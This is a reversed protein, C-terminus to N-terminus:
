KTASLVWKLGPNDHMGGDTPDASNYGLAAYVDSAVDIHDVTCGMCKDAAVANVTHGNAIITMPTGMGDAGCDLVSPNVAVYMKGNEYPQGCAGYAGTTDGIWTIKGEFTTGSVSVTGSDSSASTAAAPPAAASAAAESTTAVPTPTPEEVEPAVYPASTAAPTPTPEVEPAVYASPVTSESVPAPAPAEPAVSVVYASTEPQAVSAPTNTSAGEFFEGGSSSPTALVTSLTTPAGTAYGDTYWNTTAGDIWEVVTETVWEVVYAIELARKDHLHQHAMRDPHLHAHQHGHPQAAAVSALAALVANTSKM